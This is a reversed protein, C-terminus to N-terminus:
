DGADDDLSSKFYYGLVDSNRTDRRKCSLELYKWRDSALMTLALPLADDPMVIVGEYGGRPIRSITGVSVLPPRNSSQREEKRWGPGSIMRLSVSLGVKIRGDPRDVAGKIEIAKLESLPDRDKEFVSLSLSYDWAWGEIRMFLWFDHLKAKQPDIRPIQGEGM